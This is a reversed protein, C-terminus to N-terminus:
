KSATIFQSMGHVQVAVDRLNRERLQHEVDRRTFMRIGLPATLLWQVLRGARSNATCTTMVALRGGPALVRVLEDLARYPDSMMYMAAYCMVGDFSESPFPLEHADARIYVTNFVETCRVTRELMSMSIDVGVALGSAPLETAIFSTFNGPGCGVDLVNTRETLRLSDRIVAREGAPSMGGLTARGAPGRLKAYLRAAPRSQLITQGLSRAQTPQTEDSCLCDIVSAGVGCHQATSAHQKLSHVDFQSYSNLM